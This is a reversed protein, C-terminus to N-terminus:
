RSDDTMLVPLAHYRRLEPALQRARTSPIERLPTM